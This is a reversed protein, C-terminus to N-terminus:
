PKAIPEKVYILGQTHPGTPEGESDILIVQHQYEGLPLLATDAADMADILIEGDNTGITVPLTFAVPKGPARRAQMLATTGANFTVAAGTADLAMGRFGKFRLGRHIDFYLSSAPM